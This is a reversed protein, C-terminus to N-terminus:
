TSPEARSKVKKGFVILFIALVFGGGVYSTVPSVAAWAVLTYGLLGAVGMVLVAYPIQTKVHDIHDCATAMSSMVTTDSIPSCHDGFIAGDLVASCSLALILVGTPEALVHAYVLPVVVPMLIGMTGWSTGTCFATLAALLFISIPLAVPDVDGILTVLFWDAHVAGTAGRIAIALALVVLTPAVAKVATWWAEATGRPSLLRQSLTLAVATVTGGIAALLLILVGLNGDLADGAVRFALQWWDFSGLELTGTIHAGAAAYGGVVGFLVVLIPLLGNVARRPTDPDPALAVLSDASAAVANPSMLGRGSAARQEAAFMPGFDRGTLAVLAVMILSLICYFRLPLIELFVHYGGNGISSLLDSQENFLSIEFGVWTSILAIGAVPAATSDVIYALKERSIGFRDTLPRASAGVVVSNAYDDFFVATGMLATAAQASRRTNARRAVIDILGDLGASRLQVGVMGILFVTFAYISINFPSTLAPTMIEAVQLASGVPAFDAAMLGACLVAIGLALVVRRFVFALLIALLPPLLSWGNPLSRSATKGHVTVAVHQGAVFECSADATRATAFWRKLQRIQAEAVAACPADGFAGAEPLVGGALMVAQTTVQPGHYALERAPDPRLMIGILAIGLLGVSLRILIQRRPVGPLM